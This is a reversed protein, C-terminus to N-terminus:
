NDQKEEQEDKKKEITKTFRCAPFRSCALFPGRKGVREFLIAKCRECKFETKKVVKKEGTKTFGVKFKCAPYRSCHLFKGFRSERLLMKEGCLECKEDTQEPESIKKPEAKMEVEAKELQKELDTWFESLIVKSDKEGRAVQDLSEEMKATFESDVLQAFHAKLKVYVRKGIDTPSFAGREVQAYGRNLLTQITPAYTSPRGVGNTELMRVLSASNFRPPPETFHQDPTLKQLELPDGLELRPLIKEQQESTEKEKFSLKVRNFGDFVVQTGSARFVADKAKIMATTIELQTNAMQSMLMRSWILEYLHVEDKNLYEKMQEPTRWASTPRIAEHAEQRFKQKSTKRKEGVPKMYEKGFSKEIFEKAEEKAEKAITTSDTRMYTILGVQGEPLEKGEYLAQAITMTKAPSFGITRFAAQQLTATTFPLPALRSSKSSKIGDVVYKAGSLEDVIAMADTESKIDLKEIKRDGKKILAAEFSQKSSQTQLQAKISWYEEKTFADIETEREVIFGLAVSQVRGASLGKGIKKWLLPSIKYGVLRDIIRRTQQASVLREDIKRPSKLAKDIAAPTIEHFTLRSIRKPEIKLAEALHWAIAEGERDFDTALYIKEFKKAQVKLEKIIKSKKAINIYRPTFGNEIDVGLSSKPLDRIHGWSSKVVFGKKKLMGAITREKTPSEVILLGTNKM